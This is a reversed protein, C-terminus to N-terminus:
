GLEWVKREEHSGRQMVRESSKRAEVRKCECMPSGLSDTKASDRFVM